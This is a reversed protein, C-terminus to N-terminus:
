NRKWLFSATGCFFRIVCGQNCLFATANSFKLVIPKNM